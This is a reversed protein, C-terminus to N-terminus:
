EVGSGAGSDDEPDLVLIQSPSTINMQAKGRHESVRGRAVIWRARYAVSPSEPFSGYAQRPIHLYPRNTRELEFNLFTRSGIDSTQEVFGIVAIEKGMHEAMDTWPVAGHAAYLRQLWAQETAGSPAGDARALSVGDVAILPLALVEGERLVHMTEDQENIGIDFIRTDAYSVRALPARRDVDWIRVSNESFSMLRRGSPMFRMQHIPESHTGLVDFESDSGINWLLVAGDQHGSAIYRESPDVGVHRTWDSAGRLTSVTEGSEIDVILISGEGTGSIAIALREGSALLRPYMADGLRKTSVEWLMEGTDINWARARGAPENTLFVIPRTPHVVILAIHVEEVGEIVRAPETSGAGDFVRLDFARRDPDEPGASRSHVAITRGTAVQHAASWFRNDPAELADIMTASGGATAIAHLRGREDRQLVGFGPILASRWWRSELTPIAPYVGPDHVRVEGNRWGTVIRGDAAFAIGSPDRGDRAFAAVRGGTELDFIRVTGDACAAAVTSESECVAISLIRVQCRAITRQEYEDIPAGSGDTMLTFDILDGSDNAVVFRPQEGVTAMARIRGRGYTHTWLLTGDRRRASIRGVVDGCAFVGASALYARPRDEASVWPRQDVVSGETSLRVVHQSQSRRPALFAHLDREGTFILRIINLASREDDSFPGLAARESGDEADILTVRHRGTQPDSTPLALTAGAPCVVMPAWGGTTTTRWRQDGSSLDTATVLGGRTLVYATDGRVILTFVSAGDALAEGEPTALAWLLQWDEARLEEPAESLLSAADGPSGGEIAAAASAIALRYSQWRADALAGEARETAEQALERQAREAEGAQRAAQAENRAVVTQSDARDRESLAWASVFSLAIVAAILVGLVSAAGVVATRNRRVFKSLRYAPSPPGAEVPRDELFRLLDDQLALATAYRRNRDKELCRLAIWDLDGRLRDGLDGARIRRSKAIGALVEASDPDDAITSVRTSPRPPEVECIIRRIEDYGAQRLMRSDFPPLGTLLEYLVVGLSYVDTRTDIDLGTMAAQEPSMYEPTGILQGQETFVTRDSLPQEIAKAIGFDIVKPVPAGDVETVLINSPKLDRHIVGKSHAHQVAACVPSFLEVRERIGLRHSDCYSSIPEGRVLEMVFYPNGRDTMGGDLVRAINPHDMIALAQREAEFRALVSASDMGPKLIKLAVRRRMPRDQEAEYVMGFGGEGLLSRIRYRGDITAGILDPAPGAQAPTRTAATNTPDAAREVTEAERQLMQEAVRAVSSSEARARELRDARDADPLGQLERFLQEARRQTEDSPPVSEIEM